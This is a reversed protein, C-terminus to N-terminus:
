LLPTHWLLPTYWLLPTHWLLRKHCLVQRTYRCKMGMEKPVLYWTHHLSIKQIEHVHKTSKASQCTTDTTYRHKITLNIYAVCWFRGTPLAIPIQDGLGKGGYRGTEKKSSRAERGGRLSEQASDIAVPADCPLLDRCIPNVERVLGARM